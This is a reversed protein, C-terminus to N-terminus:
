CQKECQFFYSKKLAVAVSQSLLSIWYKEHAYHKYKCKQMENVNVNIEIYM